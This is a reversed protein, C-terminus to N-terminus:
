EEGFAELESLFTSKIEFRREDKKTLPQSGMKGLGEETMMAIVVQNESPEMKGGRLYKSVAEVTMGQIKVYRLAAALAAPSLHVGSMARNFAAIGM